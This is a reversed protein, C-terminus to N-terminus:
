KLFLDTNNLSFQNATIFHVCLPKESMELYKLDRRACCCWHTMLFFRDSCRTLTLLFIFYTLPRLVASKHHMWFITRNSFRLCVVSCLNVKHETDDSQHGTENHSSIEGPKHTESSGRHFLGRCQHPQDRWPGAHWCLGPASKKASVAFDFCYVHSLCM